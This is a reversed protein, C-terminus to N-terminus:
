EDDEDESKELIITGGRVDFDDGVYVGFKGIDDIGILTITGEFDEFEKLAEDKTPFFQIDTYDSTNTVICYM